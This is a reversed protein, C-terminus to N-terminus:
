RGYIDGAVFDGEAAVVEDHALAAQDLKGADDAEVGGGVGFGDVQDDGLAGVAQADALRDAADVVEVVRVQAPAAARGILRPLAVEGSGVCVSRAGQYRLLKALPRCSESHDDVILIAATSM